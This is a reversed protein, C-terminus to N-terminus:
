SAKASEVATKVTFIYIVSQYVRPYFAVITNRASTSKDHNMFYRGGRKASQFCTHSFHLNHGIFIPIRAPIKGSSFWFQSYLWSFVDIPNSGTGAPKGM